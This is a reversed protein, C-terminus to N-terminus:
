VKLRKCTKYMLQIQPNNKLAKRFNDKAKKDAQKKKFFIQGPYVRYDEIHGGNVSQVDIVTEDGFPCYTDVVRVKQVVDKPWSGCYFSIDGHFLEEIEGITPTFWVIDDIELAEFERKRM